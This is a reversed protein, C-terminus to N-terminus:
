NEMLSRRVDMLIIGLHNLGMGVPCQGWFRDGWTNGEILEEDGTSLLLRALYEDDFKRKVLTRMYYQKLKDDWKPRKPMTRVLRKAQGPTSCLRIRERNAPDVKCAQYAHEVTPYEVGYALVPAPWFNSLFRYQSRFSTIM